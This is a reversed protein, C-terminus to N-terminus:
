QQRQGKGIARRVVAGGAHCPMQEGLRLDNLHEEGNFDFDIASLSLWPCYM